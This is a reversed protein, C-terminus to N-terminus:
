ISLYHNFFTIIANLTTYDICKFAEEKPKFNEKEIKKVLTGLVGTLM